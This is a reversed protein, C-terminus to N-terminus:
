ITTVVDNLSGTLASLTQLTGDSKITTYELTTNTGVLKVVKSFTDQGVQHIGEVPLTFNNGCLTRLDQVSDVKLNKSSVYELLIFDQSSTTITIIHRYLTINGTGIISQNFVSKVNDKTLFEEDQARIEITLTDTILNYSLNYSNLRGVDTYYYFPIIMSKEDESNVVEDIYGFYINHTEPYDSLFLGQFKFNLANQAWLRKLFNIFPKYEQIQSVNELVDDSNLQFPVNFSNKLINEYFGNYDVQRKM